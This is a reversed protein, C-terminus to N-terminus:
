NEEKNFQQYYHRLLIHLIQKGLGEPCTFDYTIITFNLRGLYNMMNEYGYYLKEAYEKVGNMQESNNVNNLVVKLPVKCYVILPKTRLFLDYTLFADKNENYCSFDFIDKRRIVPGYVRESICPFRDYILTKKAKLEEMAWYIMEEGIDPGPSHILPIKEIDSIKRAFTTKGSGDMGEFIIM